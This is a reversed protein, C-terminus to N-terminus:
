VQMLEGAAKCTVNKVKGERVQEVVVVREDCSALRLCSNCFRLYLACVQSEWRREAERMAQDPSRGGDAAAHCPGIIQRAKKCGASRELSAPRLAPARRVDPCWCPWENGPVVTAEERPYRARYLQMGSAKAFGSPVLVSTQLVHAM